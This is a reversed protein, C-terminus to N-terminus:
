DTEISECVKMLTSRYRLGGQGLRSLYSYSVTSGNKTPGLAADRECVTSGNKTPGARRGM